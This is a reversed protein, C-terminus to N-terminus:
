LRFGQSGARKGVNDANDNARNVSQMFADGLSQREGDENRLNKLNKLPSEKLKEDDKQGLGGNFQM